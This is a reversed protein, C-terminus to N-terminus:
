TMRSSSSVRWPRDQGDSGSLLRPRPALRLSPLGKMGAGDEACELPREKTHRRRSIGKGGVSFGNRRLRPDLRSRKRALRAPGEGKRHCTSNPRNTLCLVTDRRRNGFFGASLLLLRRVSVPVSIAGRAMNPTVPTMERERENTEAM